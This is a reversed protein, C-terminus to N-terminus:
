FLHSYDKDSYHNAEPDLKHLEIIQDIIKKIKELKSIEWMQDISCIGCYVIDNEKIKSNCKNCEM